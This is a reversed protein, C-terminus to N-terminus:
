QQVDPKKKEGGSQMNQKFMAQSLRTAEREQVIELAETANEQM